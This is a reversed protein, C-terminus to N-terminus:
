DEDISVKFGSKVYTSNKLNIDKNNEEIISALPLDNLCEENITDYIKAEIGNTTIAIPAMVQRAYSIAQVKDKDTLSHRQPKTEILFVPQNIKRVLIDLFGKEQEKKSSIDILRQGLPLKVLVEYEIEEPDFGMNKFLPIIIRNKVTEENLPNKM